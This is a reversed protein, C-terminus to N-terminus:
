FLRQDVGKFGTESLYTNFNDELRHRPTGLPRKGEPKGTLIQYVNRLKRM